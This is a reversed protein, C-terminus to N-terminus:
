IMPSDLDLALTAAVEEAALDPGRHIGECRSQEDNWADESILIERWFPYTRCQLPRAPYIRCRKADDLFVCPGEDRLRVGLVQETLRVLFQQKLADLELGLFAAIRDAEGPRLAVYDGPRGICCDGCGTCEFRLPKEHYFM